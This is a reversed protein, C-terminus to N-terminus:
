FQRPIIYNVERETGDLFRVTFHTKNYVVIRELVMRTLEPVHKQLPGQATLEIMQAARMKELPNGTEKVAEWVPILTDRDKVVRNWAILFANWVAEDKVNENYCTCGNRKEKNRCVWYYQDRSTWRKRCFAAGCHDCVLKAIFPSELSGSSYRQIGVEKCYAERRAIELQVAEWEEKPIIAKHSNKVYYQPAQGTNVERKKTLYDTTVYKQLLADGMYKENTLMRRITSISWVAKGHVGKIKEENLHRSIEGPAWGEEFERFVRRVIKAQKPNIVLNGDEGKDYGMFGSTNVHVIGQQFKHRMGWKSNESINRSEEQALSSLITFLLEGTEEMTFINEKEFLIGIGLSRLKRSYSLCDQTNRAFRSISKTIVRDIKGAECDAIMRNFQERKKTNTGSIGEDVYIDVLEYKPNNRIYERYYSVQNELSNLQEDYETSVRCYAAVRIKRDEEKVNRGSLSRPGAPIVTIKREM